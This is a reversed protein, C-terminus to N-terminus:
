GDVDVPASLHFEILDPEVATAFDFHSLGIGSIITLNESDFADPGVLVSLHKVVAAGIAAGALGRWIRHIVPDLPLWFTARPNADGPRGSSWVCVASLGRPIWLPSDICGSILAARL